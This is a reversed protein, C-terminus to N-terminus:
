SVLFYGHVALLNVVGHPVDKRNISVKLFSSTFNSTGSFWNNKFVAGCLFVKVAIVM